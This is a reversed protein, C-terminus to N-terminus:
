YDLWTVNCGGSWFKLTYISGCESDHLMLNFTMHCTDEVISDLRLNALYFNEIPRIPADRHQWYNKVCDICANRSVIITDHSKQNENNYTTETIICLARVPYDLITTDVRNYSWCGSDADYHWYIDCSLANRDEIEGYRITRKNSTSAVVFTETCSDIWVISDAISRDKQGIMILTDYAVFNSDVLGAHNIAATNILHKDSEPKKNCSFTLCLLFIIIIASIKGM